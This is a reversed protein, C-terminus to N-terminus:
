LRGMLLHLDVTIHSLEPLQQQRAHEALPTMTWLWRSQEATLPAQYCVQQQQPNKMHKQTYAVVDSNNYGAADDNGMAARLEALYGNGPVVKILLGGPRLVRKFEAYNAPALVNLVVDATNKRMPLNALDAVCWCARAQRRAAAAVADRSLDVGILANDSFRDDASLYASYYGEGCGADLIVAPSPLSAIYEYATQAIAQAVRDYLGSDFVSQRASFLAADYGPLAGARAFNVYGNKAIDFSHEKKCILRTGARVKMGKGCIPCCFLDRYQSFLAAAQEKKSIGAAM